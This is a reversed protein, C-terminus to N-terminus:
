VWGDHVSAAGSVCTPCMRNGIHKSAFGKGCSLCKRRNGEALKRRVSRAANIDMTEMIVQDDSRGILRYGLRGNSIRGRVIDAPGIPLRSAGTLADLAADATRYKALEHNGALLAYGGPAPMVKLGDKMAIGM